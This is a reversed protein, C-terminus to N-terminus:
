FFLTNHILINFSRNDEGEARQRERMEDDERAKRVEYEQQSAYHARARDM